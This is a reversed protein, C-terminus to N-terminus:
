LIFLDFKPNLFVDIVFLTRRFQYKWHFSFFLFVLITKSMSFLSQFDYKPKKQYWRLFEFYTIEFFLIKFVRSPLNTLITQIKNLIVEIGEVQTFTVLFKSPESNSSGLAFFDAWFPQVPTAPSCTGRFSCTPNFIVFFLGSKVMM